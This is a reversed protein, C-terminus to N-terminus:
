GRIEGKSRLEFAIEIESSIEEVSKSGVECIYHALGEYIPARENMLNQWQARPNGMLLPRGQNFGV